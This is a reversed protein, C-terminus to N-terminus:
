PIADRGHNPHFKHKAEAAKRAATAEEITPFTGLCTIRYDVTIHAQWGGHIARRVGTVGTVSDRHRAANRRNVERSVSRLNSLQNNSRNGDIHDVEVADEDTVLKWIVRHALANVGLVSGHRYGAGHRATLAEKGAFSSNWKACTHAASHKGEAFMSAPREKWFLKGSEPDFRLIKELFAREPLQRTAM